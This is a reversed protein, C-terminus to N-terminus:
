HMNVCISSSSWRMFVRPIGNEARVIGNNWEIDPYNFEGMILISIVSKVSKICKIIRRNDIQSSNPSRYSVGVLIKNYGSFIAGVDRM